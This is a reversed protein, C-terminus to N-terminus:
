RARLSRRAMLRAYWDRGRSGCHDRIYDRMEGTQQNQRVECAYVERGAQEYARRLSNAAKHARCAEAIEPSYGGTHARKLGSIRLDLERERSGAVEALRALGVRSEHIADATTFSMYHVAVCRCYESDRRARELERGVADSAAAAAVAVRRGSEESARSVAERSRAALRDLERQHRRVLALGAEDLEDVSPARRLPAAPVTGEPQGSRRRRRLLFLTLLVVALATIGVPHDGATAVVQSLAGEM